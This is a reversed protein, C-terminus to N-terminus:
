GRRSLNRRFRSIRLRGLAYISYLRETVDLEETKFEDLVREVSTFQAAHESVFAAIEDAARDPATSSHICITWAGRRKEVPAWLQQPIWKVGGRRFPIRAFGDSIANIGENSLARLTGQDFGHRPAVWIRPNLDHGRLISLGARIWRQQMEEPVGAFESTGHLPVLSRGRSECIHRYGHLGITAGASEMTRMRCWFDPDAASEELEPDCNEPVVALIPRIGFRAMVPIFREFRDWAMTPCLDDFRLIYQAPEAIM